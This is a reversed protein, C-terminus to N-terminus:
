YLLITIIAYVIVSFPLFITRSQQREGYPLTSQFTGDQMIVVAYATAGWVPAHISVQRIYRKDGMVIRREGYPLTSQFSTLIDYFVTFDGTAGWVPAHISVQVSMGFFKKRNHREGYPLTSQFWETDSYSGVGLPREGYPLTSQFLESSTQSLEQGLREGYPLTSQFADQDEENIEVPGDSGMRSRPNFSATVEAAGGAAQREGYPLTSQFEGEKRMQWATM